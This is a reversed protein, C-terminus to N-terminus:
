NIRKSGKSNDNVIEGLFKWKIGMLDFLRCVKSLVSIPLVLVNSKGYKKDYELLSENLESVTPIKM